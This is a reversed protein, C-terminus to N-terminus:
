IWSLKVAQACKRSECYDLFTQGALGAESTLIGTLTDWCQCSFANFFLVLFEPRPTFNFAGAM